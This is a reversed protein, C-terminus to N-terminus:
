LKKPIERPDLRTVPMRVLLQFEYRQSSVIRANSNVQSHTFTLKLM